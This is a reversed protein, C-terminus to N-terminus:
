VIGQDLMSDAVRKFGAINAGTIYDIYGEKQGYQKIKKHIDQMIQLLKEDVEQRSWSLRLSNQSMELGSVAVGGANSAKGPSFLIHNTQFINIAEPTSPMNAGEAVLKVGNNVLNEADNQFIENQTACPLAIDAKIHWPNQNEFYELSFKEAAEKIRGRKSNKLEKIFDLKTQDLGQPDYITGNSDSMTLVQAGLQIAKEAAYQAVNGSGSVLVKKNSIQDNITKLMETVFYVLGYGTAETRIQSGGWNLGKGTLVGSYDKTLKKYQGFLYGIERTGVGIDGAPIDINPGIHRYLEAMFSQSFRMIEAESKDHPDFDSGGKGGGM